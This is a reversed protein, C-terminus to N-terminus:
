LERLQHALQLYVIVTDSVEEYFSACSSEQDGELCQLSISEDVEELSSLRLLLEQRTVSPHPTDHVPGPLDGDKTDEEEDSSGMTESLVAVFADKFHVFDVISAIAVILDSISNAVVNGIMRSEQEYIEM